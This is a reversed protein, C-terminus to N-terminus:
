SRSPKKDSLVSDKPDRKAYRAELELPSLPQSFYYGQILRCGLKEFFMLQEENEVGEVIVEIDLGDALAAISQCIAVDNKDRPLGIVFSRDIKLKNFPLSKLRGLSSFGTGFDDIALSLGLKRLQELQSIGGHLQDLLYSETVELCFLSPNLQLSELQTRITNLLTGKNIQSSSVNISLMGFNFGSQCWAAAQHWATDIVWIGLSDILDLTEAIPIFEAPSVMGLKPHQWRILAEIGELQRTHLDIQPQYVLFLENNRIADRLDNEIQHRRLAKQTLDRSYFRYTNRGSQKAELLASDANRLLDSVESGDVPFVSIGISVRVWIAREDVIFPREFLQRFSELQEELSDHKELNEILVVFEDGCIRSVHSSNPQCNAKLRESVQIILSDGAEHGLSDNIHKFYDLDIMCIMVRTGFHVSRNIAGNLQMNLDFRNSLGTLLDHKQLYHIRAQTDYHESLDVITASTRVPYSGEVKNLSIELPVKRGDKHLGFIARGAMARSTEPSNSFEEVHAQHAAAYTKPILVSINQGLLEKPAYGFIHEAAPNISKIEGSPDVSLIGNVNSELLKLAEKEAHQARQSIAAIQQAAETHAQASSLRNMQRILFSVLLLISVTLLVLTPLWQQRLQQTLDDIVSAPIHKILRINAFHTNRNLMPGSLPEVETWLYYGHSTHRAGSNQEAMASRIDTGIQHEVAMLTADQEAEDARSPIRLFNGTSNVIWTPHPSNSRLLSFFQRLDISILFIGLTKMDSGLAPTTMHIVPRAPQELVGQESNLRIDSVQVSGASQKLGLQVHAATTKDQLQQPKLNHLGDATRNIRVQEIGRTDVFSIQYLDAYRNAISSLQFSLPHTNGEQWAALAQRIAAEDRLSHLISVPTRLSLELAQSKMMLTNKEQQVLQNLQQQSQASLFQWCAIVALIIVLAMGILQYRSIVSIPRMFIDM